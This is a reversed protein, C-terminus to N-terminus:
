TSPSATRTGWNRTRTWTTRCRHRAAGGRQRSRRWCRPPSSAGAARDLAEGDLNPPAFAAQLHALARGLRRQKGGALLDALWDVLSM